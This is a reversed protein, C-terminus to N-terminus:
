EFWTLPNWWIFQDEEEEPYEEIVTVEAYCYAGTIVDIFVERQYLAYGLWYTEVFSTTRIPSCEPYDELNEQTGSPDTKNIPDCGAYAYPLDRGSPDRQTWRGLDPNYYRTGFKTLGTQTDHYGSAYRWPNPVTESASLQMGYPDYRYTNVKAGTTNVLGVV